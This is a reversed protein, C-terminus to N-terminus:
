SATALTRVFSDQATRAAWLAVPTGNEMVSFAYRGHVFGSLVSALDTTGTKGIVSGRTGPGLLRHELTGSRGAVAMAQVLTSRLAGDSWCQRLIAVIAKPTLRDLSSLGSGDVIRVGDLPVNNQKLVGTVVAAGDATTGGDGAVAGMEKLLLEASFNDSDADVSHLIQDLPQSVTTALVKGGAQFARAPGDVRIHDKILLARFKKAATYAPTTSYAKGTWDRDVVLASLPPSEEIYFSAKWGPAIRVKDFFSEDGIVMGTVHTIGLRHVRDALIKIRATSLTPDGYGKLVLNGTWTGDSELSGQGRVETPFRFDPGLTKLAAFTVPLKENSAPVFGVADNHAFVLRGSTLDVAVAGTHGPGVGPTRLAAGLKANLDAAVPAGPSAAAVSACLAVAVVTLALVLRRTLPAHDYGHTQGM